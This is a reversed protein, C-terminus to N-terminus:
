LEKHRLFLLIWLRLLSVTLKEESEKVRDIDSEWQSLLTAM